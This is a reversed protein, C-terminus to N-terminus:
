RGRRRAGPAPRACRAPACAPRAPPPSSPRPARRATAGRQESRPARRATARPAAGAVLHGPARRARGLRRAADVAGHLGLRVVAHQAPRHPERGRRRGRAPPRGGRERAAAGRGAPRPRRPRGRLDGRGGPAHRRRAPTFGTLLEQRGRERIRRASSTSRRATRARGTATPSSPRGPPERPPAVLHPRADRPLRDRGARRGAVARRDGARAPRPPRPRRAVVGVEHPPHIARFTMDLRMADGDAYTVRYATLPELCEYALGNPLAFRPRRSGTRSRCTGGPATTPCSGSSRPGPSGSTSAARCSARARAPVAPLDLGGPRARARRRRVLRDRDLLPGRQPRPPLRRRGRGLAM